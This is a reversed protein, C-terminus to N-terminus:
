LSCEAVGSFRWERNLVGGYLSGFEWGIGWDVMFTGRVWGGEVLGGM